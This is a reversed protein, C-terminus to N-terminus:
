EDDGGARYQAVGRATLFPDADIQRLESGTLYVTGYETSFEIRETPTTNSATTM